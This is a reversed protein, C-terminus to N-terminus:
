EDTGSPVVSGDEQRGIVDLFLNRLKRYRTIAFGNKQRAIYIKKGGFSVGVVLRGNKLGQRMNSSLMKRFTPTIRDVCFVSIMNVTNQIEKEDFHLKLMETIQQNSDRLNEESLELFRIISFCDTVWITRPKIYVSVEELSPISLMQRRFGRNELAKNLFDKFLGYSEFSLTMKEPTSNEPLRFSSLFFIMVICSVLTLLWLFIWIKETEEFTYGLCTSVVPFGLTSFALLFGSIVISLKILLAKTRDNM